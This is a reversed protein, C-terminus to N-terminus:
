RQYEYISGDALVAGQPIRETLYLKNDSLRFSQQTTDAPFFIIGESNGGNRLNYSYPITEVPIGNRVRRYDGNADSFNNFSLTESYGAEAATVTKQSLGYTIKALNWDGILPSEPQFCGCAKEVCSFALVILVTACLIVRLRNM